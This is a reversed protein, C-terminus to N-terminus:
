KWLSLEEWNEIFGMTKINIKPYKALLRKIEYKFDLEEEDIKELMFQIMTLVFFIKKNIITHFIHQNRPKTPEIALMKNWLRSHHACINRVYTLTHLWSQFVLPKIDIDKVIEKRHTEKLNAYIKSLTNFSIIEVMSWVPLYEEDYKDFFDKVFVEKSRSTESKITNLIDSHVQTNHFISADTYGFVGSHKSIIYALQTRAYVEIKEISYFILNRFEKDFYYLKVIDEFKADDKFKNEEQYFPYFYASLRYYNIHQLKKSCFAENPVTLNRSKLLDTQQQYSLHTKSFKPKL